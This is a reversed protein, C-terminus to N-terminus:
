SKCYQIYEEPTNVNVLGHPYENSWPFPIVTSRVESILKLVSLQYSQLKEEIIPLIKSHYIGVLPQPVNDVSFITVDEEHRAELLYGILDMTICPIDCSAIFLNQQKSHRMASHIGALPGSNKYIDEYIPLKLFEYQEKSDSIIVVVEFVSSLEKAIQEIFTKGHSPLLAKDTGMRSSRGGALIAATMESNKM